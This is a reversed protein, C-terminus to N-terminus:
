KKAFSTQAGPTPPNIGHKRDLIECLENELDTGFDSDSDLDIDTNQTKNQIATNVTKSPSPKHIKFSPQNNFVNVRPIDHLSSKSLPKSESSSETKSPQASFKKAYEMAKTKFANGKNILGTYFDKYLLLQEISVSGIKSEEVKQKLKEELQLKQQKMEISPKKMSQFFKLNSFTTSSPKGANLLGNRVGRVDLECAIKTSQTSGMGGYKYTNSTLIDSDCQPEVCSLVDSLSLNKNTTLYNEFITGSLVQQDGRNSAWDAVIEDVIKEEDTTENSNKDKASLYVVKGVARFIDLHSDRRLMQLYFEKEKSTAQSSNNKSRGTAWFQFSMIASRIDGYNSIVEIAKTIEQSSINKFIEKEYQQIEKLTKSILTKAVTNFKIRKVSNNKLIKDWILRETVLSDTNRYNFNEDNSSVEVETIVLIAGPNHDQSYLNSQHIWSYLAKNFLEKTDSHSLNPLDDIMVFCNKNSQYRAASLFENFSSPLSIDETREPSEWELLTKKTHAEYHSKLINRSTIEKALTRVSTSKSAGAPGTLILLKITPDDSTMNELSSKVDALKKSHIAVSRSTKPAYKNVWQYEDSNELSEKISESSMKHFSPMSNTKKAPSPVSFSPGASLTIKKQISGGQSSTKKKFVSGKSMAAGNSKSVESSSTTPVDFGSAFSQADVARLKKKKTPPQETGISSSVTRKPATLRRSM